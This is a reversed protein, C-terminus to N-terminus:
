YEESLLRIKTSVFWMFGDIVTLNTDLKKALTHLTKNIENYSRDIAAFHRPFIRLKKLADTTKNNWVCYQENDFTHLLATLIGKNIGKVKKPGKIGDWIKDELSIEDNQLFILLNALKKPQKLAKKGSRQM